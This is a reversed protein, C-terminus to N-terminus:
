EQEELEKLYYEASSRLKENTSTVLGQLVNRLTYATGADPEQFWDSMACKLFSRKLEVPVGYDQTINLFVSLKTDNRYGQMASIIKDQYGKSDPNKLIRTLAPTAHEESLSAITEAADKGAEPFRLVWNKLLSVMENLGKTQIYSFVERLDSSDYNGLDLTLARNVAEKVPLQFAEKEGLFMVCYNIEKIDGSSRMVDAVARLAEGTGILRLTDLMAVRQTPYALLRENLIIAGGRYDANQGSKLTRILPRVAADGLATLRSVITTASNRDADAFRRILTISEVIPDRQSTRSKLTTIENNLIAVEDQLRQVNEFMAEQSM